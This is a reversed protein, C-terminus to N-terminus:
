GTITLQSTQNVQEDSLLLHAVIRGTDALINFPDGLVIRGDTELALQLSPFADIAEQSLSSLSVSARAFVRGDGFRKVSIEFTIGDAVTTVTSDAETTGACFQAFSEGTDLTLSRLGDALGPTLTPAQQNV